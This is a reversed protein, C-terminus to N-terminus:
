HCSTRDADIALQYTPNIALARQLDACGAARKGLALRAVGLNFSARYVAPPSERVARVLVEEAEVYRRTRLLAVGLNDLAHFAHPDLEVARGFHGIADDWRGAQAEVNGLRYYAATADPAMAVANTDLTEDDQWVTVQHWAVAVLMLGWLAVAIAVPWRLGPKARVLRAAGDTLAIALGLLPVYAYRDSAIRTTHIVIATPALLVALWALGALAPATPLGRRRTWWALGLVGLVVAIWGIATFSEPYPQETSLDFPLLALAAYHLAIGPLRVVAGGLALSSTTGIVAARIVVYGVAVGLMALPIWRRARLEGRTVLLAAVALPLAICAEKSLLSLAFAGCAVVGWGRLAALAAVMAFLGALLDGRGSIYAICETQLPHLAFIAVPILALSGLWRRTLAYAIVIALAGLAVNTAHMPRPQHGFLRVEAWFTAMLLPRYSDYALQVGPQHTLFPDIRDAQTATLADRLSGDFLPARQIEQVDDWVYGYGLARGFLALYAAVIVGLLALERRPPM